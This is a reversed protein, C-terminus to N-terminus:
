AVGIRGALARLNDGGATRRARRIMAGVTERVPTSLRIRQPALREATLFSVLAERDQRTQALATGRDVFYAMRRSISSISAPDVDRGIVLARGPEGAEIAIAMRWLRVNTPGFNLIAGFDDEGPGGPPEAEGLSDAVEAAEALHAEADAARERLTDGFASVLHIMGYAQRAKRTSALGSLALSVSALRGGLARQEAPLMQLRSYASLGQYAPEDLEDAAAQVRDAAVYALDVHGLYKVITGTEHAAVALRRLAETNGAAAHGALERVLVAALPAATAYDCAQRLVSLRDASVRVREFAMTPPPVDGLALGILATRIDPVAATAREHAPDVPPYPQGTLQVVSVRLADALAIITSRKDVPRRGHEVMSVYAQSVGCRDALAKQSLGRRRRWIAVNHGVYDETM